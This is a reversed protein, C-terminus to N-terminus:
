INEKMEEFPYGCAALLARVKAAEEQNVWVHFHAETARHAAPRSHIIPTPVPVSPQHLLEELKGINERSVWGQKLIRHYWSQAKGIAPGIQNKKLGLKEIFPDLIKKPEPLRDEQPVIYPM